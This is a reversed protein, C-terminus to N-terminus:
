IDASFDFSPIKVQVTAWLCPEYDTFPRSLKLWFPHNWRSINFAFFTDNKMSFRTQNECEIDPSRIIRKPNEALVQGSTSFETFYDDSRFYEM